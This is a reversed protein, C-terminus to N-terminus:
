VVPRLICDLLEQTKQLCFTLDEADGERAEPSSATWWAKVLRCFTDVASDEMQIASPGRGALIRQLRGPPLYMKLLDGDIHRKKRRSGSGVEVLTRQDYSSASTESSSRAMDQVFALLRWLPENLFTFSTISGGISAGLLMDDHVSRVVGKPEVGSWSMDWPPRTKGYRLKVVSAPLEAEFVVSHDRAVQQKVKDNWFGVVSCTKDSVVALSVGDHHSAHIHDLGSRAVEDGFQPILTGDPTIVFSLLSHSATLVHLWPDELKVSVGRSPLQQSLKWYLRDHDDLEYWVIHSGMCCFLSRQYGVVASVPHQLHVAIHLAYCTKGPGSADRIQAGKYVLLQGRSTGVVLAHRPELHWKWFALCLIRESPRGPESPIAIDDALAGTNPNVFMISSGAKGMVGIILVGMEYSYTIRTPSRYLKISWPITTAQTGCSSVFLQRDGTIVLGEPLAAVDYFIPQQFNPNAADTLWVRRLSSIIPSDDSYHLHFLKGDCCIVASGPITGNKVIVPTTGVVGRYLEHYILGGEGTVEIQTVLLLGSRYGSLLIRAKSQAADQEQRWPIAFSDTIGEKEQLSYAEVISVDRERAIPEAYGVLGYFKGDGIEAISLCTPCRGLIVPDGVAELLPKKDDFFLRLLSLYIDGLSTSYAVMVLRSQYIAGVVIVEGELGSRRLVSMSHRPQMVLDASIVISRETIQITCGDYCEAVLTRSSLDLWTSTQSIHTISKYSQALHLLLSQDGVSLLFLMPMGEALYRHADAPPYYPLPWTGLIPTEIESIALRLRAEHGYRLETAAGNIGRGTCAFIRDPQVLPGHSSSVHEESPDKQSVTIFDLIPSYNPIPGVLGAPSKAYIQYVGGDGSDGGSILIDNARGIQGLSTFATGINCQFDGAHMEVKLLDDEAADMELFKIVGDERAMYFDDHQQIYDRRRMPKTWSTWSPPSRGFHLPTPAVPAIDLTRFTPFGDLLGECAVVVEDCVMVVVSRITLPILFLPMQFAQPVLHGHKNNCRIARLNQGAVWEFTQIRTSGRRVVMLLLIMHNPDGPSPHVFEMQLIVGEVSFCRESTIPRFPHDPVHQTSSVDETHLAYIAFHKESCAIALYRSSPDISMHKGPQETLMPRSVSHRTTVFDVLGSPLRRAFVFVLDGSELALVICEPPLPRHHDRSDTPMFMEGCEDTLSQPPPTHQPTLGVELVSMIRANRIRSGLDAKRAVEQIQGDNCLRFIRVLHDGVFALSQNDDRKLRVPLIWHVIPSEVVTQTLVGLSPAKPAKKTEEEKVNRKLVTDVDVTQTTWRGDVLSSSQFTAM